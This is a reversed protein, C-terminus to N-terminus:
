GQMATTTNVEGAVMRTRCSYTGLIRGPLRTTRSTTDDELTRIVEKAFDSNLCGTFLFIYPHESVHKMRGDLSSVALLRILGGVGIRWGVVVAVESEMASCRMAKCVTVAECVYRCKSSRRGAIV